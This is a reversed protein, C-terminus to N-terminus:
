EQLSAVNKLQSHKLKAEEYGNNILYYFFFFFTPCYSDNKDDSVSNNSIIVNFPSNWHFTPVEHQLNVSKVM